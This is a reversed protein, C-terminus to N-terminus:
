ISLMRRAREFPNLERPMGLPGVRKIEDLSDEFVEGFDVTVPTVSIIRCDNAAKRTKM